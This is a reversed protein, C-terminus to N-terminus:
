LETMISTSDGLSETRVGAKDLMARLLNSLPVDNKFALHRGGKLTGAGGGAVFVPLNVHNHLNGNAIAGGYMIMSNDLLSNEGDKADRLKGLFYAVQAVHYADIKTLKALKAPNNDHHSLSHHSDPVGIQPYSRVAMERGLM